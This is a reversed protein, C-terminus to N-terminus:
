TNKTKIVNQNKIHRGM